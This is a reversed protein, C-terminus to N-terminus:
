LKKARGFLAREIKQFMGPPQSIVESGSLYSLPEDADRFELRYAHLLQTSLGFRERFRRNVAADGYKPDGLIPFGSDSLHARIQHTRGTFLEIELLSFRGSVKLPRIGTLIERGGDEAILSTNSGEDRSISGSLLMPERVEGCVVTRYFKGIGDKRRLMENVCRLAAANKGFIVLGSTNRDLRNAPAPVFTRDEGPRYEGKAQLYGCVSNTLTKKKEKSDGHILIGSSKEVVLINDDEFAIKFQKKQLAAEKSFDRGSVTFESLEADSIYVSLVDGECLVYDEKKRSGNVKIDKRIVKYVRSLPAKKLYKKLFRDLRQGSDNIGITIERM